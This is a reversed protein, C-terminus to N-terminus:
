RGDEDDYLNLFRGDQKSPTAPAQPSRDHWSNGRMVHQESFDEQPEPAPKRVPPPQRVVPPAAPM